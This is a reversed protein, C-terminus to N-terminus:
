FWKFVLQGLIPALHSLKAMRADVDLLDRTANVRDTTDRRRDGSENSPRLAAGCVFRYGNSRIGLELADEPTEPGFARQPVGDLVEVTEASRDGDDNPDMSAVDVVRCRYRQARNAVGM